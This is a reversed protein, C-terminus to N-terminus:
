EGRQTAEFDSDFGDRLGPQEIAKRWFTIVEAPSMTCPGGADPGSSLRLTIQGGQAALTEITAMEGTQTHQIKRGVTLSAYTLNEEFNTM